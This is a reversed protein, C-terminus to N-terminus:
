RHGRRERSAAENVAENADRWPAIPADRFARYGAFASRYELSVATSSPMTPGPAAPSSGCGAGALIAPALLLLRKIM